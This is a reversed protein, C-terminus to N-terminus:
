WTKKVYFTVEEVASTLTQGVNKGSFWSYNHFCNLHFIGIISHNEWKQDCLNWYTFSIVIGTFLLPNLYVSQAKVGLECKMVHNLYDCNKCVFPICYLIYDTWLTSYNDWDQLYTELVKTGCFIWSAQWNEMQKIEVWWFWNREAIEGKEPKESLKAIVFCSFSWEPSVSFGKREDAEHLGSLRWYESFQYMLSNWNHYMVAWM